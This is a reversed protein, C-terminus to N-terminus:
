HVDPNIARITARLLHMRSRTHTDIMTLVLHIYKSPTSKGIPMPFSAQTITWLQSPPAILLALSSFLSTSRCSACSSAKSACSSSSWVAGAWDGQLNLSSTVIIDHSMFLTSVCFTLDFIIEHANFHNPYSCDCDEDSDQTPFYADPATLLVLDLNPDAGVFPMNWRRFFWVSIGKEHNKEMIYFGGGEANFGSGYSEREPFSVGCGQNYNYNTDCDTSTVSRYGLEAFTM